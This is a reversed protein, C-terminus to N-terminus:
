KIPLLIKVSIIQIRIIKSQGSCLIVQDVKWYTFSSSLEGNDPNSIIEFSADELNILFM